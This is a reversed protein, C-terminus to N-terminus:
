DLIQGQLCGQRFHQIAVRVLKGQLEEAAPFVVRLYNGTLGEYYQQGQADEHVQDVPQEVPQEVIVELTRGCFSRAFMEAQTRGLAILRRSRVDKEQATVQDSMGAAVTGKRPSYKFVHLAAFGVEEVFELTHEVDEEKEGPFGVIIDTTVALDPIVYRLYGVLKAYEMTNYHRNMAQLTVDSGSQLPIHLHKCVQANDAIVSVLDPTIDTPEVSGLRLRRLGPVELLRRILNALTIAEGPLDRGYTGMCIGTLVIEQFGQDTLRAAEEVVREPKRSRLRGRAYPIICFSCYNNCGEQIKIFARTRHESHVLAIEEFEKAEMINGIANIPEPNNQAQEVLEVIRGRDATGIVLSVGPINLVEGPETQAYCGTVAVVANENGAVARRIMQRSKRNGLHTVTCTNIVYVDAPENFDVVQ